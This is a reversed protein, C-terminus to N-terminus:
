DKGLQRDYVIDAGLLVTLPIKIGLRKATSINLVVTGKPPRDIPIRGAPTGQLIQQAKLGAYYGQTRGTVVVGCLAAGMELYPPHFAVAPIQLHDRTWSLLKHNSVHHGKAKISELNYIFVVQDPHNIEDILERYGSFTGIQPHFVKEWPTEWPAKKLFDILKTSTYSDDTIINLTTTKFDNALLITQLLATTHEYYHRELVGTVNGGPAQRNGSAVLGYEEPETNIGLFVVPIDQHHFHAAITKIANDDCTVIIDPRFSAIDALCEAVKRDLWAESQHRKTDLCFSGYIIDMGALAEAIGQEEGQQWFYDPHYSYVIYVRQAASSLGPLLLVLWCYFLVAAAKRVIAM